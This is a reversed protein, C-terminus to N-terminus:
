RDWKTCMEDIEKKFQELDRNTGGRNHEIVTMLRKGARVLRDFMVSVFKKSVTKKEIRQTNGKEVCVCPALEYVAGNYPAVAEFGLEKKVTEAFIDCVEDEGHNVFVMEPPNKLNKLWDLLIRQDAHGSIGDMQEIQANVQIEEGFIKIQKAGETISRGLTGTAQYGVFLITCEPRWLNHKLHHRIRGAECMGSASIIIKPTKDENIAISEQSTVSMKLGPFNLINIGKSILSLTEDDYYEKMDGSYIQTAEIALPSDVWVPFDPHGHIRGQQKIEHILYLLDQTRGVAFAPIVVNGGRDLTEQIIRTLQSVYDKREGHLRDGYTSEIMVYDASEPKQPDRILPRDVNGIDGSFLIKKTQGAETVTVEISASGLLHGADIFRIKIGDFIGYEERYHCPVFLPMTNQVDNITYMPVYPEDGSRKAKRNRWAAESEQIHASDMLMIGCLNATAGTAYIPGSFGGAVLAPLKGSHDIHAHTLLVCDVQGPAIPLSKNEYIDAGQEMGCDIMIKHGCAYLLTCSGTVEHDAGLFELKM